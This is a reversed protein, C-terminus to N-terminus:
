LGESERANIFQLWYDSKTEFLGFRPMELSGEILLQKFAAQSQQVETTSPQEPYDPSADWESIPRQIYDAVCDVAAALSEFTAWYYLGGEDMGWVDFEINVRPGKHISVTRVYAPAGDVPRVDLCCKRDRSLELIRRLDEIDM